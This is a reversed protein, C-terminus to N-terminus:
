TDHLNIVASWGIWIDVLETRYRRNWCSGSEWPKPLEVVDEGVMYVM